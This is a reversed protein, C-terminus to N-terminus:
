CRLPQLTALSIEDAVDFLTIVIISGQLGDEGMLGAGGSSM